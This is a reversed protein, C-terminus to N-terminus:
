ATPASASTPPTQRLRLYEVVSALNEAAALALDRASEAYAITSLPDLCTAVAITALGESFMQRAATLDDRNRTPDPGSRRRNSTEQIEPRGPGSPLQMNAVQALWNAWIRPNISPEDTVMECVAQNDATRLWIRYGYLGTYVHLPLRDRPSSQLRENSM